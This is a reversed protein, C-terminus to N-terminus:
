NAQLRQYRFMVGKHNIKDVPQAATSRGSSKDRDHGWLWLRYFNIMCLLMILGLPGVVDIMLIVHRLWSTRM